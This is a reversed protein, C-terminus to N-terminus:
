GAPELCGPWDITSPTASAWGTESFTAISGDKRFRLGLLRLPRLARRLVLFAALFVGIMLILLLFLMQTHARGFKEGVKHVFIYTGSDVPAVYTTRQPILFHVVWAGHRPRKIDDLTPVSEDTAWGGDHGEFRIEVELREAFKRAAKLDPGTEAIARSHPGLERDLAERIGPIVIM